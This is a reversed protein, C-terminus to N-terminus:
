SGDGFEGGVFFGYWTTGADTTVFTFVYTESDGDFVPADNDPWEVSAPWAVSKASANQHLILTFSSAKGATAPNSFTLTTINDSLTTEHVNGDELDIDETGSATANEAVTESYNEMQPTIPLTGDLGKIFRNHDYAAILRGISEGGDWTQADGEWGRTVGTLDDSSKGTYHITEFKNASLDYITVIQGDAGADPLITADAVTITEVTANIGGDLTTVPSGPVADYMKTTSM